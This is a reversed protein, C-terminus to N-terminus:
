FVLRYCTLYYNVESLIWQLITKAIRRFTYSSLMENPWFRRVLLLFGIENVSLDIDKLCAEIASVLTEVEVSVDFGFPLPFYCQAQRAAIGELPLAQSHDCRGLLGLHHMHSLLLQAASDSFIHLADGLRDRIHALSMVEYTHAMEQDDDGLVASNHNVTLLDSSGTVADSMSDPSKAISTVFALTNWDFFFCSEAANQKNEDLYDQLDPSISLPRTSLYTELLQVVYHLEFGRLNRGDPDNEAIVISGLAIGNELIHLQTWLVSYFITLEEYTKDELENETLLIERYHEACTKRLVPYSITVSSSDTSGSRCRGLDALSTSSLCTPHAFQDCLSCKVAQATTGWLPKRCLFCLCLNFINVPRFDHQGKRITQVAEEPQKHSLIHCFRHVAVKRMEPDTELSYETLVSGQPYDYCDFHVACMCFPCLLGFGEVNRSCVRCHNPLFSDFLAPLPSVRFQWPVFQHDYSHEQSHRLRNSNSISTRRDAKAPDLSPRSSSIPKSIVVHGIAKPWYVTLLSVAIFRARPIGYAAVSLLDLYVDSKRQLLHDFFKNFRQTTSTRPTLIDVHEFIASLIPQILSTLYYTTVDQHPANATKVSFDEAGPKKWKKRESSQYPADDPVEDVTIAVIPHSVEPDSIIRSILCSVV